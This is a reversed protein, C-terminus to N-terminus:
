PILSQSVNMRIQTFCNEKGMQLLLNIFQDSLPTSLICWWRPLCKSHRIVYLFSVHMKHLLNELSWELNNGRM